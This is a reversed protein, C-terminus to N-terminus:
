PRLKINVMLRSLRNQVVRKMGCTAPTIEHKANWRASRKGMKPHKGKPGM